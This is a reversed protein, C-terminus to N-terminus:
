AHFLIRTAGLAKADLYAAIFERTCGYETM